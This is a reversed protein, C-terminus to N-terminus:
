EKLVVMPEIRSARYAPLACAAVVLVAVVSGIALYTAPDTPRVGYVLTRLLRSGAFAARGGGTTRRLLLHRGPLAVRLSRDCVAHVCRGATRVSRVRAADGRDGRLPRSFMPSHERLYLLDVNSQFRGPWVAALREPDDYPLPKLLIAYVVALIAANAEAALALTLVSTVTFAPVRVLSRFAYRLDQLM